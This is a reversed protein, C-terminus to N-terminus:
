FWTAIAAHHHKKTKLVNIHSEFNDIQEQCYPCELDKGLSSNTLNEAMIQCFKGVFSLIYCNYIIEIIKNSETKHQLIAM